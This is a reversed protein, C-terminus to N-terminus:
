ICVLHRRRITTKDSRYTSLLIEYNKDVAAHQVLNEETLVHSGAGSFIRGHLSALCRQIKRPGAM